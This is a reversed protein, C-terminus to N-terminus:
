GCPTAHTAAGWVAALYRRTRDDVQVDRRPMVRAAIEVFRGCELVQGPQDLGWAFPPVETAPRATGFLNAGVGITCGTPLMTGIATKVHDGILSGMFTLGTEYRRGGLTVRVPGYTNKLNSNITGAGLNVWRGVVAHGLFGDHAKNAYGLFVSTSVEGHVVCRPGIASGSVQGGMIRTGHAVALPGVLRTFARVEVGPALVIPGNRVDLVVQPEVLAEGTLVLAPDGLVTAGAPISIAQGPRLRELDAPLVRPLDGVLDWVGALRKGGLPVGPWRAAAEFGPWDTRRPLSFGVTAGAPDVFRVAEDPPVPPSADTPVFTSRFLLRPEHKEGPRTVVAPAGPEVFDVLHEHPTLYGGVPLDLLASWRERLLFAGYRLEGLPRSLSFPLFPALDDSADYLFLQANM